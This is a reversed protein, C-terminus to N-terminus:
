EKNKVYEDFWYFMDALVHLITNSDNVEISFKVKDLIM